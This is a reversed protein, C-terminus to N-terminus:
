LITTVKLPYRKSILLSTLLDKSIKTPYRIPYQNSLEPSRYQLDIPYWLLLLPSRHLSRNSIGNSIFLIVLSIQIPYITSIYPTELIDHPYKAQLHSQIDHSICIPYNLILISIHLIDRFSIKMPYRPQLDVPYRSSDLSIKAPYRKHLYLWLNELITLSIWLYGKM